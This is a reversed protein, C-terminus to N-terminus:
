RVSRRSGPRCPCQIAVILDEQRAYTALQQLYLVRARVGKGDRLTVTLTHYTASM